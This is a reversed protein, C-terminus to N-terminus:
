EASSLVEPTTAKLLVMTSHLNIVDYGDRNNYHEKLLVM